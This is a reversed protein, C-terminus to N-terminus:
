NKAVSKRARRRRTLSTEQEESKQKEEQIANKNPVVEILKVFARKEKNKETLYMYMEEDCEFTDGVYLHKYENLNPNKRRINILKDFKELTFNEITMVKVM